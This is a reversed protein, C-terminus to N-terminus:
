SVPRPLPVKGGNLARNLRGFLRSTVGLPDAAIEEFTASTTGVYEDGSYPVSPTLFRETVKWSAAGKLNTVALGLNWRGFHGCSESIEHAILV